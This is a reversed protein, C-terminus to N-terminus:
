TESVLQFAEASPKLPRMLWHPRRTGDPSCSDAPRTMKLWEYYM